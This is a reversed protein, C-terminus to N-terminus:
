NWGRMKYVKRGIWERIADTSLKLADVTHLVDMWTFNKMEIARIDVPVPTVKQGLVAFAAVVRKTHAAATVLLPTGCDM